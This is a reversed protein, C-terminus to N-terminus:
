VTSEKESAPNDEPDKEETSHRSSEAQSLTQDYRDHSVNVDEMIASGMENRLGSLQDFIEDTRVKNASYEDMREAPFAQVDQHHEAQLEKQRLLLPTLEDILGQREEEIAEKPRPREASEM